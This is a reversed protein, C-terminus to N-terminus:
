ALSIDIEMEGIGECRATVKDGPKVPGVGDPTGTMLVDGPHLAYFSSAWEILTPIDIVLDRTNARQRLEGNVLLELDLNGPAKIEDATVLWPGLVSYTDISKRLSREEGGRLTMDLGIAYGAVYDLAEERSVRDATRGIIVALEVEHDNRREAYRLRVGDVPGALSSSSKLFLGVDHIKQVHQQHFTEPNAQAEALHKLYNVPAAPIKSPNAVPSSLKVSDLPLRKAEERLRDIEEMIQPLNAILLDGPPLPWTVAPICKLAESVDLVEKGEIVGLRDSNFRCIRM